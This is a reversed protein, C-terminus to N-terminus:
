MVNFESNKERADESGCVDQRTGGWRSKCGLGCHGAFVKAVQRM